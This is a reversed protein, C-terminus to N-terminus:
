AVTNFNSEPNPFQVARRSHGSHSVNGIFPGQMGHLDYSPYLPTTAKVHNGNISCHRGFMWVTAAPTTPVPPTLHACYNHHFIVREFRSFMNNIIEQRLEVLASRGPGIFKNDAVQVAFGAGPADLVGRLRLARDEGDLKRSAPNSYTVLNSEVRAELIAEGAIGYAIPAVPGGPASPLGTDMIENSEIHLEGAINSANIGTAIRAASGCRIVRNEILNCRQSAGAILIAQQSLDTLRNNAVTPSEESALVIGFDGGMFRNDSFANRAGALSFAGYSTRTLENETLLCDTARTLALGLGLPLSGRGLINGSVTSRGAGLLVIGHQLGEVINGAISLGELPLFKDGQQDGALVAISATLKEGDRRIHNGCASSNSGCIRIAALNGGRHVIRNDGITSADAAVDIGFTREPGELKDPMAIFNGCVRSFDARSFPTGSPKDNIVIGRAAGSIVNAEANVPGRMERALIAVGSRLETTMTFECSSVTVDACGKDFWVGIAPQLFACGRLELDSSAAALLGVSSSGGKVAEMRCDEIVSSQSRMVTIV